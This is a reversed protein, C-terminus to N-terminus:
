ASYKGGRKSTAKYILAGLILFSMVACILALGIWGKSGADEEEEEEAPATTEETTEEVAETTAEATPATTPETTAETTPETTVETTEETAEKPAETPKTTPATTEETEEPEEYPDSGDSALVTLRGNFNQELELVYQAPWLNGVPCYVTVPNGTWLCNQKFSPMPGACHIKSLNDCGSFCEEGFKRFTSPLSVSTLGDCDYFARVGIEVMASGFNVSTLSSYGMFAEAGISTVNGSVVVSTISSRWENWPAGADMPGNGTIYLTNGDLEWTVSEGCTGAPNSDEGSVDEIYETTETPDTETAFAAPALMSLVMCIALLQLILRKM